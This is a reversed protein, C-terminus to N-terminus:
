LNNGTCERSKKRLCLTKNRSNWIGQLIVDIVDCEKLISFAKPSNFNSLINEGIAEQVMRNMSIVDAKYFRLDLM